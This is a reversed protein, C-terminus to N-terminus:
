FTIHAKNKEFIAPGIGKVETLQEAATFKGHQERYAVIAQAKKLGVGNLLDKLEEASATNINVKNVVVAASTPQEAAPSQPPNDAWAAPLSFLAISAIFSVLITKLKQM